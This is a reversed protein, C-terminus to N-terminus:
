CVALHTEDLYRLRCLRATEEPTIEVTVVIRGTRQRQRYRRQRARRLPARDLMLRAGKRLKRWNSFIGFRQRISRTKFKAVVQQL